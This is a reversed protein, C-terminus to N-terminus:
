MKGENIQIGIIIGAIIILGIIIAVAVKMKDVPYSGRVQGNRGNIYFHYVKDKFRYTSLWIPLLIQKFKIDDYSSDMSTIRQDDGGIDRRILGRISNNMVRKGQEFGDKLSLSNREAIFGKLYKSDYPVLNEIDWNESKNALEPPITFSARVLVDDFFHDISGSAPYWNTRQVQRTRRVAKGNEYATYSETEYYHEGRQGTYSTATQVDYTWYPIYIGRIKDSTAYKRLKNPAWFKNSIWHKFKQKAAKGDINFPLLSNPRLQELSVQDDISISADCFSCHNTIIEPEFTTQGNCSPCVVFDQLLTDSESELIEITKLYDNEVIDFDDIQIENLTGCYDCNLHNTGPLYKLGAGCNVCEINQEVNQNDFDADM